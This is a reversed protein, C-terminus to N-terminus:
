ESLNILGIDVTQIHNILSDILKRIEFIIHSAPHNNKYLFRLHTVLLILKQHENQHHQLGDYNKQIMFAEEEQFHDRSYAEFFQIIEDLANPDNTLIAQDLLTVLGFIERHHNDLVDHVMEYQESWQSM